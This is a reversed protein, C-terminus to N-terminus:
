ENRMGVCDTLNCATLHRHPLLATATMYPHALYCHPQLSIPTLSCHPLLSTATLYRQPLLSTAALYCHPLLSTATFPSTAALYCHPLVSAPDRAHAIHKIKESMHELRLKGDAGPNGTSAQRGPDCGASAQRGPPRPRLWSACAQM